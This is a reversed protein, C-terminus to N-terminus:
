IGSFDLEDLFEMMEPTLSFGEQPNEPLEGHRGDALMAMAGAALFPLVAEDIARFVLLTGTPGALAFAGAVASTVGHLSKEMLRIIREKIGPSTAEAEELTTAIPEPLTYTLEGCACRITIITGM